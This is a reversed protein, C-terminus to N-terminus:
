YGCSPATPPCSRHTVDFLTGGILEEPPRGLLEGLAANCASIVGLPTPVAMGIPANEFASRLDIDSAAGLRVAIESGEGAEARNPRDIYV